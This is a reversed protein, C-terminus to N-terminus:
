SSSLAWFGIKKSKGAFCFVTKKWCNQQPNHTQGLHSSLHLCHSCPIPLGLMGPLDQKHIGEQEEGAWSQPQPSVKGPRRVKLGCEANPLWLSFNSPPLFLLGLKELDSTKNKHGFVPASAAQSPLPKNQGVTRPPTCGMTSPVAHDCSCSTPPEM